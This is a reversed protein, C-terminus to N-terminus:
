LAYWIGSSFHIKGFLKEEKVYLQQQHLDGELDINWRFDNQDDMSPAYYRSVASANGDVDFYLTRRLQEGSLKAVTSRETGSVKTIVMEPSHYPVELLGASVRAPNGFCIAMLGDFRFSVSAEERPSPQVATAKNSNTSATISLGLVVLFLSFFLT